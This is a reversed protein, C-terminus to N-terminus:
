CGDEERAALVVSVIIVVPVVVVMVGAFDPISCRDGDFIFSLLASIALSELRKSFSAVPLDEIAVAEAVEGEM